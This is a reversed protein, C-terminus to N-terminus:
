DDSAAHVPPPVPDGPDSSGLRTNAIVAQADALGEPPVVLHVETAYGAANASLCYAAAVTESPFTAVVGLDYRGLLVWQCHDAVEGGLARIADVQARAGEAGYTAVRLSAAADARMLLLVTVM